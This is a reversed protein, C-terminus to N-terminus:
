RTNNDGFRGGQEEARTQRDEPVAARPEDPKDAAPFM